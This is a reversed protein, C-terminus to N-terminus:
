KVTAPSKIAELMEEYQLDLTDPSEETLEFLTRRDAHGTYVADLYEVFADRYQGDNAHMLFFVMGGCQSYLQTIDKANQFGVMDFQVIDRFPIYFKSEFFRYKAALVRMDQSSGLLYYEGDKRLTEMYIAVAETAWFNPANAFDPVTKKVGAFLQHTAEHYLNRYMRSEADPTENEHMSFFCKHSRNDYYGVSLGINPDDKKLSNIYDERNKFFVIKYMSEGPLSSKGEFIASLQSEPAVYRIFIQRWVRYFDELKRSLIVGQEISHNTLIDYHESHIVWGNDIKEHQKQDEEASIWKGKSFREGAEYRGAYKEPIWGFREHNVYGKKLKQIEWATRWEGEYLKYGLTHRLKENDPDVHLAALILQMAIMTRHQRFAMKSRSILVDAYERRLVQWAKLWTKVDESADDPLTVNELATPFAPIYITEKSVPLILSRTKEAERILGKGDCWKALSEANARYDTVAQQATDLLYDFAAVTNKSGATMM